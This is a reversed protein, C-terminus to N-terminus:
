AQKLPARGRARWAIWFLPVLILLERCVAQINALWAGLQWYRRNVSLFVHLPPEFYRSTFPWLAMLGIPASTDASLWDLLIHTAYAAAVAIAFRLREGTARRQREALPWAAWGVAGAFAAFGIGHTPGRHVSTLLDFDPLVATFGFAVLVPVRAPGNVLLGATAGAIM